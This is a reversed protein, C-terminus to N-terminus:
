SRTLLLDYGARLMALPGTDPLLNLAIALGAHVLLASVGSKVFRVALTSVAAYGAFWLWYNLMTGLGHQAFVQQLAFIVGVSFWLGLVVLHAVYKLTKKSQPSLTSTENTMTLVTRRRM